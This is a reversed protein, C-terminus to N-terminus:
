YLGTSSIGSNCVRIRGNKRVTYEPYEAKLERAYQAFISELLGYINATMNPLAHKM